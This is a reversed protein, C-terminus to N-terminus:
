HVEQSQGRADDEVGEDLIQEILAELAKRKSQHNLKAGLADFSDMSGSFAFDQTANDFRTISQRIKKMADSKSIAM